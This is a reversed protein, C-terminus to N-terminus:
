MEDKQKYDSGWDAMAELVSKLSFGTETLAYEVRPPVQAYVKRSVLGSNEMDRLNDTLVKQSINGVSRKLEGFRKKGPLLDRIIM